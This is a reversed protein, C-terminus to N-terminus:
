KRLNLFYNIEVHSQHYSKINLLIHIDNSNFSKWIIDVGERCGMYGAIDDIILVDLYISLFDDSSVYM